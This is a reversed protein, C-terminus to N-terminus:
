SEVDGKLDLWLSRYGLATVYWRPVADVYQIVLGERRLEKVASNMGPMDELIRANNPGADIWELVKRHEETM